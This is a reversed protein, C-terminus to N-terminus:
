GLKWAGCLVALCIALLQRFRACAPLFLAPSRRAAGMNLVVSSVGRHRGGFQVRRVENINQMRRAKMNM